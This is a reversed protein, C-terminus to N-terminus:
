VWFLIETETNAAARGDFEFIDEAFMSYYEPFDTIIRNALIALDKVSM